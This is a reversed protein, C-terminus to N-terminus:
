NKWAAEGGEKQLLGWVYLAEGAVILTEAKCVRYRTGRLEVYDDETAEPETPGIYVYRGRPIEGLWQVTKRMNEWSETTVPQLFARIVVTGNTRILKMESGYATLIQQITKKM